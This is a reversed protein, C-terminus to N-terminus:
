PRPMILASASMPWTEQFFILEKLEVNAFMLYTRVRFEAADVKVKV